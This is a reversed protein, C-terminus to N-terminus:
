YSYPPATAEGPYPPPLYGKNPPQYPVPQYGQTSMPVAVPTMTRSTVVHTVAINNAAHRSRCCRCCCSVCGILTLVLLTIGVGLIVWLNTVVCLFQGQDLAALPNLSCYREACTGSCFSLVCIQAQHILLDSGVYPACDQALVAHVCLLSLVGILTSPTLAM